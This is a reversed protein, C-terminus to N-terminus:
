APTSPRRRGTEVADELVNEQSDTLAWPGSALTAVQTLKAPDAVIIAGLNGIGQQMQDARDLIDSALQDGVAEAARHDGQREAGAHHGPARRSGCGSQLAGASASALGNDAPSVVSGLGTTLRPEAAVASAPVSVWLAALLLAAGVLASGTPPQAIGM